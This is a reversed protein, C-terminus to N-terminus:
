KRNTDPKKLYDLQYNGVHIESQRILRSQYVYNTIGAVFLLAACALLINEYIDVNNITYFNKVSLGAILFYMATRLFSLFTSQNSLRTRQLALEERLILDKNIESNEM